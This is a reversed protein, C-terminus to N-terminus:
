IIEELKLWTTKKILEAPIAARWVLHFEQKGVDISLTDCSFSIKYNPPTSLEAHLKVTPIILEVTKSIDMNKILGRLKIIEGGVFKEKFRQDFPAVNYFNLPLKLNEPYRGGALSAFQEKKFKPIRPAWQLPIADFGAPTVQQGPKGLLNNMYEINPLQVLEWDKERTLFGKGAPNASYSQDSRYPCVGGFANEYILEIPVLFEPPSQQYRLAHHQWRRNGFIRLNKQWALHERQIGLMVDMVHYKDAPPIISGSLLIEAGEKFPMVESSAKLSSFHPEGRWEDSDQLPATAISKIEGNATFAFSAKVVATFQAVANQDFGSHINTTLDTNNALELM